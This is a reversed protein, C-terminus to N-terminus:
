LAQSRIEPIGKLRLAGTGDDGSTQEAGVASVRNQESLRCEPAAWKQARRFIPSRNKLELFLPGATSPSPAPGSQDLGYPHSLRRCRSFDQVRGTTGTDVNPCGLTASQQYARCWHRRRKSKRRSRAASPESRGSSSVDSFAYGEELLMRRMPKVLSLRGSEAIEFARELVNSPRGAASIPCRRGYLDGDGARSRGSSKRDVVLDVAVDLSPVSQKSPPAAHARRSSIFRGIVVGTKQTRRPFAVWRILAQRAIAAGGGLDSCGSPQRPQAACM